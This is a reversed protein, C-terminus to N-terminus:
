CRTFYTRKTIWIAYFTNYIGHIIPPSPTSSIVNERGMLTDETMKRRAEQVVKGKKHANIEESLSEKVDQLIKTCTKVGGGMGGVIDLLHDRARTVSTGCTNNCLKCYIKGDVKRELYKCELLKSRPAM